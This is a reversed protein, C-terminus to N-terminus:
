IFIKCYSGDRASVTSPFLFHPLSLFSSSMILLSSPLLSSLHTFSVFDALNQLKPLIVVTLVHSGLPPSTSVLKDPGQAPEWWGYWFAFPKHHFKCLFNVSIFIKHYCVLYIGNIFSLVNMYHNKLYESICSVMLASSQPGFEALDVFDFIRGFKVKSSSFRLVAQCSTVSMCWTYM